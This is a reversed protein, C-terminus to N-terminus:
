YSDIIEALRKSASGPNILYCEAYKRGRNALELRLKDNLVIDNISKELDDKDSISLVANQKIFDFEYCKDTTVINLIPKNLILGELMTTSPFLESNINIIIDASKIVEIIPTTQYILITSDMEYILKKLYENGPDQAPHLKVIVRVNPLKKLIAFITKFLSELRIYTNTDVLTNSLEMNQTTIVITKQSENNIRIDIKFFSDHRPSGVVIIKDDPIHRNEVLHKKQLQGWLAIKDQFVSTDFVDYRTLEKIYNTFAHQLMISSINNKNTQFVAKETEGMANLSIICSVNYNEFIKKATIILQIYDLLRKKYIKKLPQEILPWFSYNEILFNKESFDNHSWIWDIKKLYYDTLSIIKNKEERNLINQTIIKCKHNRLLRTSKFNWIASRRMNFFVINKNLKSLHKILESYQIPNFELFLITKKKNQKFGLRFIASILSEVFNKTKTYTSRSIPISIPIKGINFRILIKDWSVIYEHMTKSFAELEVERTNVFTRIITAFHDSAIMKDPKEKEIIRKIILFNHLENVVLNHFEATDLISLLNIGDFELEKLVSNEKHWKWCYVTHDFIKLRDNETLYNEAIAHEVNKSELLKHTQINFSFVKSGLERQSINLDTFDEITDLFYLIKKM